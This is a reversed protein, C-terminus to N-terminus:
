GERPQIFALELGNINPLADVGHQQKQMVPHVASDVYFRLVTWQARKVTIAPAQVLHEHVQDPICHIGDNPFPLDPDGGAEFLFKKEDGDPVSPVSNWLRDPAANEIWKKSGFRYPLSGTQPQSNRVSNHLVM